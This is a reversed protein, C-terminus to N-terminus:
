ATIFKVWTSMSPIGGNVVTLMYYGPPAVTPSPPAEVVANVRGDEARVMSQCRLKLMRQNM